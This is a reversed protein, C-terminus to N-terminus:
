TTLKGALAITGLRSRESLPTWQGLLNYICPYFSGQSIGQFIRCVIVGYSGFIEAFLPVFCSSTGNFLMAGILINKSGYM